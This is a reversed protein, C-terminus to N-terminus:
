FSIQVSPLAKLCASLIIVAEMQNCHSNLCQLNNCLVAKSDM